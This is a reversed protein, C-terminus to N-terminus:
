AVRFRAIEQTLNFAQDSLSGASASTEEVLAANQQTHADLQVIAGVVDDVEAAQGSTAASIEGLFLNIQKANAVIESMVYGAGEV